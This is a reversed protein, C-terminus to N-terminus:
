RWEVKILEKVWPLKVINLNWPLQDLLIDIASTEMAICTDDDKKYLKGKRQLFGERLGDVSTNKLMTWQEIAAKMMNLAEECISSDLLIDKDPSLDIPYGCLVKPLLLEHEEAELCGTAIFHLLWIAKEQETRGIFDGQVTLGTHMFLHRYFPHLLILGANTAFIGDALLANELGDKKLAVGERENKEREEMNNTDTPLGHGKEIPGMNSLPLIGNQLTISELVPWLLPLAEQTRHLGRFRKDNRHQELIDFAIAASAKGEIGAKLFEQWISTRMKGIPRLEMANWEIEEDSLYREIEFIWQPLMQQEHATVVEMLKVLFNVPHNSILRQVANVNDHVLQKLEAILSYDTALAELVLLHWDATLAGTNWGLYGSRMYHLWQECAHRAHTKKLDAMQGGKRSDLYQQDLLHQLAKKTEQQIRQYLDTGNMEQHGEVWEINGLDLEMKDIQIVYAEDTMNDLVKEIAPLIQQYYFDGAKQQIRFMDKNSSLKLELVQKKIVHRM